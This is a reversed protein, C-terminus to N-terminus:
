QTVRIQTTTKGSSMASDMERMAQEIGEHLQAQTLNSGYKEYLQSGIRMTIDDGADNVGTAGTGLNAAAILNEESFGAARGVYGYHINSYIDYFVARDQSPDKFYYDNESSLNFKEELIPKHDWPGGTKVMNYFQLAAASKDNTTPSAFEWWNPNNLHSMRAVETSAINTKMEDFIFKEARTFRNESDTYDALNLQKDALQQWKSYENKAWELATDIPEGTTPDVRVGMYKLAILRDLETKAAAVQQATLPSAASIRSNGDGFQNGRTRIEQANTAIVTKFEGIATNLSNM